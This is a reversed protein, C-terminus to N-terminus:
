DTQRQFHDTESVSKISQTESVSKISQSKFFGSRLEIFVLFFGLAFLLDNSAADTTMADTRFFYFVGLFSLAPLDLCMLFASKIPWNRCIRCNVQDIAANSHDTAKKEKEIRL